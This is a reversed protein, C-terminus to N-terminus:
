STSATPKKSSPTALKVAVAVFAVWYFDNYVIAITEVSSAIAFVAMYPLAVYAGQSFFTSGMARLATLGFMLAWLVLGVLGLGLEADLWTSHAEYPRFGAQKVIWKLPGWVTEDYWVAGYGYGLWPRQHILNQVAFWIRTRGTFTADKGLLAFGADPNLIALAGLAILGIVVGWTVLIAAMPGRRFAGVFAMAGAGIALTLLATKSTSMIVLGLAMLAAAAWWKRYRGDIVAAASAFVFGQTMNNGLLNKEYWVGRWAGPFLEHM